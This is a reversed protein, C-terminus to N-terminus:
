FGKTVKRTGIGVVEKASINSWDSGGGATTGPSSRAILNGTGLNGCCNAGWTWLTGDTKLGMTFGFREHQPSFRDCMATEVKCWNAGGGATTGPSCRQNVNGSTGTGLQGSFNRGWTWLTGDTKVAASHTARNAVTCWTTGGGSVTFPSSRYVTDGQGLIGYQNKGWTWLTGDTKIGAMNICHGARIMCWNTGGGATTAPSSTCAFSSVGNGLVGCYQRGWTWLTGDTKIAGAYQLSMTATCWTTGGGSITAPSNRNNYGGLSNGAGLVRYTNTGWTWLTGDTKVAISARCGLDLFCWNTGGGATTGPSSRCTYSGDGLQGSSGLGWTWLTGDCKIGGSHRGSTSIQCWVTSGGLITVPSSRQVTDGQGGSGYCNSGWTYMDNTVFTYTTSFDNTWNTGDSFRFGGTNNIFAFRGTNCCAPPLSATCAVVFNANEAANIAASLQVADIESVSGSIATNINEVLKCIGAPM